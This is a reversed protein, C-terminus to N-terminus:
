MQYNNRGSNKARYLQEDSKKLLEKISKGDDPFIAIGISTTITIKQKNTVLPKRFCELVKQAVKLANDKHVIRWLLLIFEDGGIRAVTDGKRLIKTLRSASAVLVKDGIDHGFTDNITKFNDLDLSMLALKRKTRQAHAMAITFRDFLLARNPLGTLSDHSALAQLDGKLKERITIDRINCQIVRRHNVLYANSVFEVPFLKGYKTELPMNDFRIFSSRQLKKYAEKSRKIDKFAGIQWLQKGIFEDRSYGLIKILFPNVDEIKGSLADLILIGDQATEFLRRYQLESDKLKGGTKKQGDEATVPQGIQKLTQRRKGTIVM